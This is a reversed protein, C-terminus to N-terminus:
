RLTSVHTRIGIVAAFSPLDPLWNGGLAEIVDCHDAAAGGGVFVRVNEALDRNLRLLERELNRAEMRYSISLAVAEAGTIEAAAAIEEAPLNPGLYHVKWGNDAAIIAVMLSGMQCLQGSPTTVIMIPEAAGLNASRLLDLLVIQTVQTVLHEHVIKVSGLTWLEGIRELLPASFQTLFAMRSLEVAAEAVGKELGDGDLRLAAKICVDLRNENDANLRRHKEVPEQHGETQNLLAMLGRKDLAALTSISHGRSTANRLLSLYRIDDLSYLRRNTSTREPKIIQYRKEWARLVHQTLGSAQAAYGIPFIKRADTDM